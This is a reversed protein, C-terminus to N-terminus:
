RRAISATAITRRYLDVTANAVGAAEFRDRVVEQANRGIETRAQEDCLLRDVADAWPVPDGAPLLAGTKGQVIVESPGGEDSALVPTGAAMAELMARGLPEGHSPLLLLDAARMLLAVDSRQGLFDVDADLGLDIVLQRLAEFFALNDLRTGAAVFRTEGVVLLRARPHRNKVLSLTRIATEHGKWPSIQGVMLLLEDAVDLGLQERATRRTLESQTFRSTEVPNFLVSFPPLCAGLGGAFRARTYESVGVLAAARRALLRRAARSLRTNPLADHIHVIVPPGTPWTAVCAIIGSRITNAHVIDPRVDSLSRRLGWVSITLEAVARALASPTTRLSASTGQFLIVTEGAEDMARALEGSPCVIWRPLEPPLAGLLDLLAMEAGSTTATHNVFLVRPLTAVQPDHTM